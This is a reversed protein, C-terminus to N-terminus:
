QSTQRLFLLDINRPLRFAMALDATDIGATLLDAPDMVVIPSAATRRSAYGRRKM